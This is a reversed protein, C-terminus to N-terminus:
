VRDLAKKIDRMVDDADELGTSIRVLLPDTGLKRCAADSKDTHFMLAFSIAITEVDGLSVGIKCLELGDLFKRCAKRSGLRLSVMGGYETMQKRAVDHCPHSRLGPYLVERVKRHGALFEALRAATACHREMRVHLTKLGRLFLWANFPSLCGGMNILMRDRLGSVFEESGVVVGGISDGHGGIYKTASHVVCDIGLLLPKQLYPTAFTNDVVSVLGHKKAARAVAKIDIISLEPNSPTEFFIFRTKETVLSPIKKEINDCPDFYKVRCGLKDIIADYFKRTGGYIQSGSILEDGPKLLELFTASIAALGSSFAVAAEGGELLAMKDEFVKVTPNDMRTYVFGKEDGKYVDIAEEIDKFFFTSAQYIPTIAPNYLFQGEGGHVATTGFGYGTKSARLKRSAKRLNDMAMLDYYASSTCDIM